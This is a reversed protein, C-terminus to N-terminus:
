SENSPQPLLADQRKEAHPLRRRKRSPCPPPISAPAFAKDVWVASAREDASRGSRRLGQQKALERTTYGRVFAQLIEGAVLMEDIGVGLDDMAALGYENWALSNPGLSPRGAAVRGMWPRRLTSAQIKHALGALDARWNGRSPPTVGDEGGVWDVMLDYL